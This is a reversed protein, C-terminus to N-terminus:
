VGLLAEVVRLFHVENLTRKKRHGQTVPLKSAMTLETNQKASTGSWIANATWISRRVGRRAEREGRVSRSLVTM